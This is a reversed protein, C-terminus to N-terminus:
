TCPTPMPAPANASQKQRLAKKARASAFSDQPLRRAANLLERLDFILTFVEEDRTCIQVGDFSHRFTQSPDPAFYDDYPDTNPDYHGAYCEFALALTEGAKPKGLYQAAHHGGIFDRNKTNYIGKPVGNLFFLQENGGCASVAYLAKGDLADPVTFTGRLWMNNWEGGWSTGPAIPAFGAEPVARLHEETFLAQPNQLEGVKRYVLQEYIKLAHGLKEYIRNNLNENYM